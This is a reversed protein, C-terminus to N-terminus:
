IVEKGESVLTDAISVALTDAKNRTASENVMDEYKKKAKFLNIKKLLNLFSFKKFVSKTIGSPNVDKNYKLTVPIENYINNDINEQIEETEEKVAISDEIFQLMTEKFNTGAFYKIKNEIPEFELKIGYFEFIKTIDNYKLYRFAYILMVLEEVHKRLYGAQFVKDENESDVDVKSKVIKNFLGKLLKEERQMDLDKFQEAFANLVHETFEKKNQKIIDNKSKIKGLEQTAVEVKDTLNNLDEQTMNNLVEQNIMETM